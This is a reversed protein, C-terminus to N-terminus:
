KESKVGPLAADVKEQLIRLRIADRIRAIDELQKRAEFYPRFRTAMTAERNRAAQVAGELSSIQAQMAETKVQL